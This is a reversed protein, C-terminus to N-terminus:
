TRIVYDKACFYPARFCVYIIYQIINCHKGYLSRSHDWFSMERKAKLPPRWFTIVVCDINIEVRPQFTAGAKDHALIEMEFQWKIKSVNRRRRRKFYGFITLRMSVFTELCM